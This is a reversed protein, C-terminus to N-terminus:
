WLKIKFSIRRNRASEKERVIITPLASKLDIAAIDAINLIEEKDGNCIIITKNSFNIRKVRYCCSKDVAGSREILVNM